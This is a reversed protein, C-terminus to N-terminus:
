RNNDTGDDEEQKNDWSKDEDEDPASCQEEEV